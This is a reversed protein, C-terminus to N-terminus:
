RIKKAIVPGVTNYDILKDICDPVLYIEKTEDFAMFYKSPNIGLIECVKTIIVRRIWVFGKCDYIKQDGSRYKKDYKCWKEGYRNVDKSDNWTFCDRCFYTM